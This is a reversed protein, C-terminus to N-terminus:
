IVLGIELGEYVNRLASYIRDLNHILYPSTHERRAASLLSFGYYVWLSITLLDNSFAASYLYKLAVTVSRFQM